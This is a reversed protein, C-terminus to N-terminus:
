ILPLFRYFIFDAVDFSASVKFLFDNYFGSGRPLGETMHRIGGSAKSTTQEQAPEAAIGRSGDRSRSGHGAGIGEKLCTALFM